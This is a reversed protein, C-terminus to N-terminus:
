RGASGIPRTTTATSRAKQRYGGSLSGLRNRVVNAIMAHGQMDFGAGGSRILEIHDVARAPIRKLVEELTDQKSSPRRGDILITAAQAPM